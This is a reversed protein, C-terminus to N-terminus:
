RAAGCCRPSTSARSWGCTWSCGGGIEGYDHIPIVHPESLKAALAAERRFRGRYEPDAALQQQLRKVAVTRDRQVDFARYVEGMGGRGILADLRYPGFRETM